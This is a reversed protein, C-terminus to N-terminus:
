IDSNNAQRRRLLASCVAEPVRGLPRLEERHRARDSPEVRNIWPRAYEPKNLFQRVNNM